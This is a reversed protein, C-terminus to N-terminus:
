ITAVQMDSVAAAPAADGGGTMDLGASPSPAVGAPPTASASLAPVSSVTAAPPTSSPAAAVPSASPPAAVSPSAAVAPPTPLVAAREEVAATVDAVAVSADVRMGAALTFHWMSACLQGTTEDFTSNEAATWNLGGNSSHYLHLTLSSSNAVATADNGDTMGWGSEAVETMNVTICVNVPASFHTGAPGFSFVPSAIVYSASSNSADAGTSYSVTVNAAPVQAVSIPVSSNLAGPPFALEVPVDPVTVVGGSVSVNVPPFVCSDDAVRAIPNFNTARPNTCGPRTLNFVVDAVFSAMARAKPAEWVNQTQYELLGWSGYKTPAGVDVFQMYPFTRGRGALLGLELFSDLYARYVGEMGAHRNAAIFLETLGPTVGGNTEIVSQEVLGLGGEYVILPIRVPGIRSRPSYVEPDFTFELDPLATGNESGSGASSNSSGNLGQSGVETWPTVSPTRTPTPMSSPTVSPSPLASTALSANVVREVALMQARWTAGFGPLARYCQELVQDM